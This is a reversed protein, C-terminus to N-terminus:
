EFESIDCSGHLIGTQIELSSQYTGEHLLARAYPIRTKPISSTAPRIHDEGTSDPDNTSFGLGFNSFIVQNDCMVSYSVNTLEVEPPLPNTNGTYSYTASSVCNTTPSHFSCDMRWNDAFAPISLLSVFIIAISKLQNM